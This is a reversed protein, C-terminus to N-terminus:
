SKAILDDDNAIENEKTTEDEAIVDNEPLTVDPENASSKDDSVEFRARAEPPLDTIELRLPRQLRPYLLFTIGSVIISRLLNFPLVGVLLYWFYFNEMTLGKYLTSMMGLIAEFGYMKAYFPISIFRNVILAMVTFCLSGVVLSIAATKKSKKCNYILSAPLVFCIGLLIDTAEGVFSTSTLPFKLLCKLVIVLCGSIPGMSFGAILAPMESIQIELFSPFMFPLNFKCFAYLIFSIATYMSLKAVYEASYKKTTYRKFNATLNTRLDSM